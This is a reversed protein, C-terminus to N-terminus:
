ALFLRTRLGFGLGKISLGLIFFNKLVRCKLGFSFTLAVLEFNANPSRFTLLKTRSVSWGYLSLYMFDFIWDNNKSIKLAFYTLLLLLLIFNRLKSAWTSRDKPVQVTYILLNNLPVPAHSKMCMKQPMISGHKM